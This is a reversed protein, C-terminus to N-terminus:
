VRSSYPTQLVRTSVPVVQPNETLPKRCKLYEGTCLYQKEIGKPVPGRATNRRREIHRSREARFKECFPFVFIGIPKLLPQRIDSLNKFPVRNNRRQFTVDRTRGPDVVPQIHSGWEHSQIVPVTSIERGGQFVATRVRGVHRRGLTELVELYATIRRARADEDQDGIAEYPEGHESCIRKRMQEIFIDDVLSIVSSIGYHAVKLPTDITFGTGMVPIHFTHVPANLTSDM